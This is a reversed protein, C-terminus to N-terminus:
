KKAASKKVSGAKKTKEDGFKVLEEFVKMFTTINITEMFWDSNEADEITTESQVLSGNMPEAYLVPIVDIMFENIVPDSILPLMKMKESDPLNDINKMDDISLDGLLDTMTKTAAQLSTYFNKNTRQEFFKISNLTYNFRVVATKEIEEDKEGDYIKFKIEHKFM